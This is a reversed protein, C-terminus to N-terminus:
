ESEAPIEQTQEEPAECEIEGPVEIAEAENAHGDKEEEETV